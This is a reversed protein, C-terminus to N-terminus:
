RKKSRPPQSNQSLKQFVLTAEHGSLISRDFDNDNLDITLGDDLELGIIGSVGFISELFSAKISTPLTKSLGNYTVTFKSIM